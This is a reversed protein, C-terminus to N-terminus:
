GNLAIQPEIDHKPTWVTHFSITSVEVHKRNLSWIQLKETSSCGVGGVSGNSGTNPVETHKRSYHFSHSKLLIKWLMIQTWKCNKLGSEACKVRWMRPRGWSRDCENTVGALWVVKVCSPATHPTNGLSLTNSQFFLQHVSTMGANHFYCHLPVFLSRWTMICINLKRTSKRANANWMHRWDIPGWVLEEAVIIM